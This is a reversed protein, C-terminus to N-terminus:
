ARKHALIKFVTWMFLLFGALILTGGISLVGVWMKEPSGDTAIWATAMMILGINWFVFHTYALATSPMASGQFRPLAHYAFGFIMMSMWGLLMLHAHAQNYVSAWNPDGAMGLALLVSLLFYVMAARIFNKSYSEM